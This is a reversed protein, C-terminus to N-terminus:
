QRKSNIGKMAKGIIWQNYKRVGLIILFVFVAIGLVFVLILQWPFVWFVLRAQITKNDVGYRLDLDAKYRGLAFNEKQFKIKQFFSKPSNETESKSWSAQFHRVSAPLVNGGTGIKPRNVAIKDSIKGFINKIVIEGQPKLHVNGLNEFGIIFNVPLSEYIKKKEKLRFETLRGEEKIDGSVRLLILSGLKGTIGIATGTEAKPPQNAFFIAAYHGGADASVPVKISFSVVKQELHGIKIPGKEIEIWSALDGEKEEPTLFHPVGEENEKAGFNAVSTYVSVETETENFIKIENKIEQGPNVSFELKPPSITLALVRESFLFGFVSFLLVLFGFCIIRKKNNM